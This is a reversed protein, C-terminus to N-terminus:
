TTSSTPIDSQQSATLIWYIGLSAATRVLAQSEPMLGDFNEKFEAMNDVAVVIAPFVQEPTDRHALNYDELSAFKQLREQRENMIGRLM